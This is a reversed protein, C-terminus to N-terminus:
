ALQIGESLINYRCFNHLNNEALHTVNFDPQTEDEELLVIRVVVVKILNGIAPDKYLSSVMNMITLLYTEVDGDQHFSVMSPDAVILAEVHRPTSISRKERQSERRNFENENQISVNQSYVSSSHQINEQQRRGQKQHLVREHQRQQRHRRHQRHNAAGAKINNHKNRLLRMKRSGQVIVQYTSTISKQFFFCVFRVHVNCLAYM